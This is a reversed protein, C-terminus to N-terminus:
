NKISTSAGVVLKPITNNRNCFYFWGKECGHRKITYCRHFLNVTPIVDQERCLMEFGVLIRIANPVLQTIRVAFYRLIDRFFRTTPMRIGAELQEAYVAVSGIPPREATHNPGPTGINYGERFPYKRLIRNAKVMGIRSRYSPLHGFDIDSLNGPAIPEAVREDHPVGVGLEDNYLVESSGESAEPSEGVQSNEASEEGSSSTEGESRSSTSEEPPDPGEEAQYSSKVTEKHTKAVKAM